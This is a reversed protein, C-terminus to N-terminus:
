GNKNFEMIYALTFLISIKVFYKSFSQYASALM